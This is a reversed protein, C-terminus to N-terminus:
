GKQLRSAHFVEIPVPFLVLNAWEPSTLAKPFGLQSRKTLLVWLFSLAKLLAHPLLVLASPKLIFSPRNLGPKLFFNKIIIMTLCQDLNGLSLHHIGWGPFVWLWAPHPEMCDSRRSGAQQLVTPSFSRQIDRGVWVTVYSQSVCSYLASYCHWEHEANLSSWWTSECEWKWSLMGVTWLVCIGLDTIWVAWRWM